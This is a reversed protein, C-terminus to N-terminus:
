NSYIAFDLLKEDEDFIAYSTSIREKIFQKISFGKTNIELIYNSLAGNSTCEKGKGIYMANGKIEYSIFQSLYPHFLHLEHFSFQNSLEFIKKTKKKASSLSNIIGIIYGKTDLEAVILYKKM